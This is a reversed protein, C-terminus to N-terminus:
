YLTPEIDLDKNQSNQNPPMIVIEGNSNISFENDALALIDKLDDDKTDSQDKITKMKAKENLGTSM